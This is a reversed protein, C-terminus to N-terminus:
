IYLNGQLANVIKAQIEVIEFCTFAKACIYRYDEIEPVVMENIKSAISMCGIGLLQYWKRQVNTDIECYKDLYKIALNHTARSSKFRIHVEEMWGVLKTRMRINLDTQRNMYDLNTEQSPSLSTVSNVRVIKEKRIDDFWKHNLADIFSIRNEYTIMKNLLDTCDANELKFPKKQWKPFTTKYEPFKEVGKWEKETPTGLRDFICYLQDIESDGPFLVTNTMLEYLICGISWIDISTNYKKVGLLLEPARYWLTQIESTFCKYDNDMHFRSLGWDCIKINDGKILINEPKLDRHTIHLSTCYHMGMLIQFAIKKAQEEKIKYNNLLSRLDMKCEELYLKTNTKNIEFSDLKVIEKSKLATLAAIERLTNAEIDHYDDQSKIKKCVIGKKNTKHVQGYTGYGIVKGLKIKQQKILLDIWSISYKVLRRQKRNM